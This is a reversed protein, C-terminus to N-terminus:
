TNIKAKEIKGRNLTLMLVSSLMLTAAIGMEPTLPEHLILAGLGIAVLPNIFTHMSVLVPPVNRVLWVYSTFGWLTGGLILYLMTGIMTWDLNAWAVQSWEGLTLAWIYQTVGGSFMEIGTMLFPSTPMDADSSYITGINWSICAVLIIGIDQLRVMKFHALSQPDALFVMGLLGMFLSLWIIAKPRSTKGWLWQILVLLMPGTAGILAAMGSPVRVLGLTMFGNGFTILCFGVVIANGLQRKTPMIERKYWLAYILLILGAFFYRSGSLVFPPFSILAYKVGIYTSGWVIYIAFFALVFSIRSPKLM